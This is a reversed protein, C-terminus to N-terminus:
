VFKAGRQEGFPHGRSGASSQLGALVCLARVASCAMLASWEVSWMGGVEAALVVLRAREGDGSLGPCTREKRRRAEELAAGDHDAARPRASGDRRLTLGPDYRGCLSVTRSLRWVDITWTTSSPWTWTGSSKDELKTAARQQWGTQPEEERPPTPPTPWSKGPHMQEVVHEHVREQAM